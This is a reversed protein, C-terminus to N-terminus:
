QCALLVLLTRSGADSDVCRVLVELYELYFLRRTVQQDRKRHECSRILSELFSRAQALALTKPLLQVFVLLAFLVRAKHM